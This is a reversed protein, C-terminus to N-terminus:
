YTFDAVVSAEIKLTGSVIPTAAVGRDFQQYPVPSASSEVIRVPIPHFMIRLNAAISRAKEIANDVALNLAQQYYPDSDSLVFSILDVVNAGARVAADIINGIQGMDGTKIELINRVSYGKEIQKGEQYDYLKEITYQFTKIDSVGLNHLTDIIDSSIRANESQISSLDFGTSQVGLHIVATDPVATVFGHGTITMTHYPLHVASFSQVM